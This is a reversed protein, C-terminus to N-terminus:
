GLLKNTIQKKINEEYNVKEQSLALERKTLEELKIGADTNEKTAQKVLKENQGILTNVEDWKARIEEDTMIKLMKANVSDEKKSFEKESESLKLERGDLDKIKANVKALKIDLEEKKTKYEEIVVSQEAKLDSLLQEFKDM